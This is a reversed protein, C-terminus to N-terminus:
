EQASINNSSYKMAASNILIICDRTPSCFYFIFFSELLNLPSLEVVCISPLSPYM